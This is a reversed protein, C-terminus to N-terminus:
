TEPEAWHKRQTENHSALNKFHDVPRVCSAAKRGSQLPQPMLVMRVKSSTPLGSQPNLTMCVLSNLHPLM